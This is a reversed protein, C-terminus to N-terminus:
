QARHRQATLEILERLAAQDVDDLRKLYLCGKGATHPGLRAVVDAYRTEFDSMLYVVLHPRRAAFGVLAADGEHGSAYKYHYTGFGVIGGNWLAPSEGTAERMLTCM